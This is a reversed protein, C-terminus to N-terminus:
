KFVAVAALVTSAIAALTAVATLWMMLKTQRDQEKRAIADIYYNLGIHIKQETALRDHEAILDDVSMKQLDAWLRPKNPDM